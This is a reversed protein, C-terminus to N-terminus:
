YEKQAMEALKYKQIKGSGTMPFGTVFKYHHPRKAAPLCAAVHAAVAETSLRAGEKLRIWAAVELGRQSHQFGFVQVESVDVLRYIVEEV